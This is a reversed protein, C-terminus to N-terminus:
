LFVKKNAYSLKNKIFNAHCLLFTFCKWVSFPPFFAFFFLSSQTSHVRSDIVIALCTRRVYIHENWELTYTHPLRVRVQERYWIAKWQLKAVAPKAEYFACSFKRMWRRFIQNCTGSTHTRMTPFASFLEDNWSHFNRLLKRATSGIAHVNACHVCMISNMLNISAFDFRLVWAGGWVGVVMPASTSM